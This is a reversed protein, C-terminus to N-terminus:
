KGGCLAMLKLSNNDIVAKKDIKNTLKKLVLKERSNSDLLLEKEKTNIM